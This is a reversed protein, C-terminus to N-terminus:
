ERRRGARPYGPADGGSGGGGACRYFGADACPRRFAIEHDATGTKQWDILAQLDRVQVSDGDLNRLLNEALVKLSKPLKDLNGLQEALRSLHYIHYHKGGATLLTECQQKLTLSM